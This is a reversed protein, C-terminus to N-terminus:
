SGENGWDEIQDPLVYDILDAQLGDFGEHESEHDALWLALEEISGFDYDNDADHDLLHFETDTMSIVLRCAGALGFCWFPGSEDGELHWGPRAKLAGSIIQWDKLNM